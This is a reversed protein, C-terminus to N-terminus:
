GSLQLSTVPTEVNDSDMTRFVNMSKLGALDGETSRKKASRFTRELGVLRCSELCALLLEKFSPASKSSGKAIAVGVSLTKGVGLCVYAGLSWNSVIDSAM